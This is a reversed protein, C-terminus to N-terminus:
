VIVKWKFGGASRGKGKCCRSIHSADAGSRESAEKITDYEAILTLLDFSWQQIKTFELLTKTEQDGPNMFKWHFGGATKRYGKCVKGIHESQAGSEAAAEEISGFTRLFESGDKSWQQVAKRNADRILDKTEDQHHKGFMAHQEGSRVSSMLEKTEEHLVKNKNGGTENNYGYPCLTGRQAIEQIELEDLREQWNGERPFKHLIEIQFQDWGYKRIANYLHRRRGNNVESVHGNLRIQFDDHSTQGIYEKYPELKCKISYVFPM